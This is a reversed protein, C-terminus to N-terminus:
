DVYIDEPNLNNTYNKYATKYASELKKTFRLSDFISSDLKNRDLTLKISRLKARDMALKEALKEYDEESYTILEELGISKLMSGSVRAFSQKGALTIVPLGAWLADIATAHANYNFTDLFLDALMHRALHEEASVRGAFFIRSSCIFRKKAEKLINSKAIENDCKLWLVANKNKKLLRMWIDFERSSIKYIKNFCCYIFADNPLNYRQRTLNIQNISRTNDFPFYSGPLFIVKETYLNRKEPPIIFQDGVMYQIFDAGMTTEYGLFSIQIPAPRNAFLQPKSNKSFGALDILIDIELESIIQTSEKISFSGIEYFFDLEKRLRSNLSNKDHERLSFGFVEFSNKDHLEIIRILNILVPHETFDPSVYGIRIKRSRAKPEKSFNCINANSYKESSWRKVRELHNDPSDEISLMILPPIIEKDLDINKDAQSLQNIGDLDFLHKLCHILLFKANASQCLDFSKRYQLSAMHYENLELYVNGKNLYANSYSPDISLAKDFYELSQDYHKIEKKLSGLNNLAFAYDPKISIANQYAKEAFNFEGLHQYISGLINYAYPNNPQIVLFKKLNKIADSLKKQARLVLSLNLYGDDFDPNIKLAKRLFKEAKNYKKVKFFCIGVLNLLFYNNPNEKLATKSNKIVAEFKKGEFLEILLKIQNNLEM